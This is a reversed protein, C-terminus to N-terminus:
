FYFEIPETTLPYQKQYRIQKKTDTEIKDMM